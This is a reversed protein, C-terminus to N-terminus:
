MVNIDAKIRNNVDELSIVGADVLKYFIPLLEKKGKEWSEHNYFSGYMFIQKLEEGSCGMNLLLTTKQLQRIPM